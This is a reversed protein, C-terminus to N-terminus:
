TTAIDKKINYSFDVQESYLMKVNIKKKSM